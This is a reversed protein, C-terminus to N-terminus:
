DAQRFCGCLKSKNSYTASSHSTEKEQCSIVALERGLRSHSFAGPIPSSEALTKVTSCGHLAGSNIDVSCAYQLQTHASLHTNGM